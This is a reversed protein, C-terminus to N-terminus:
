IIEIEYTLDYKDGRKYSEVYFATRDKSTIGRACFELAPAPSKLNLRELFRPEPTVARVRYSVRLIPREFNEALIASLSRTLDHEILGKALEVPVYSTETALPTSDDYFTQEIRYVPTGTKVGLAESVEAPASIRDALHIKSSPHAGRHRTVESLSTVDSTRVFRPEAVFMGSSPVTYILGKGQLVELARRLTMRSVGWDDAMQREPTLREHAKMKAIQSTLGSVLDEHKSKKGTLTKSAM